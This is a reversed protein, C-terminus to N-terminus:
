INIHIYIELARNFRLNQNLLGLAPRLTQVDLLGEPPVRVEPGCNMAPTLTQKLLQRWGRYEAYRM